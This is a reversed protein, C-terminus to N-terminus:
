FYIVMIIDGPQFSIEDSNRGCFEYVARFKVYEIAANDYSAVVTTTVQPEEVEVPPATVRSTETSWATSSTTDWGSTFSSENNKRNNRM